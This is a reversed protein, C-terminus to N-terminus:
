CFTLIRLCAYKSNRDEKNLRQRQLKMTPANTGNVHLSCHGDFYGGPTSSLSSQSPQKDLLPTSLPLTPLLLPPMSSLTPLPLLPPLLPSPLLATTPSRLLMDTSPILTTTLTSSGATPFPLQIAGRLMAQVMAARALTSTPTPTTTLSPTTTPTPPSRTLTCRPLLMPLLTPLLTPLWLPMTSWLPPMSWPHPMPWLM